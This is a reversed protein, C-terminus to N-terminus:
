FSKKEDKNANLIEQFNNNQDNFINNSSKRKNEYFKQNRHNKNVDNESNFNYNQNSFMYKNFDQNLCDQINIYQSNLNNKNNNLIVSQLHPNEFIKTPSLKNISSVLENFLYLTKLFLAQYQHCNLFKMFNAENIFQDQFSIYLYKNHNIHRLFTAVINVNTNASQIEMSKQLFSQNKEKEKDQEKRLRNLKKEKKLDLIKIFNLEDILANKEEVM